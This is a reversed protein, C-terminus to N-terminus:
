HAIKVVLRFSVQFEMPEYDQYQQMLVDYLPVARELCSPYAPTLLLSLSTLLGLAERLAM